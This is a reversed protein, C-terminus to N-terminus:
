ESEEGHVPCPSDGVEWQCQCGPERRQMETPPDAEVVIGLTRALRVDRGVGPHEDLFGRCVITRGILTGKHCEFPRDKAICDAIIEEAREDSVIRARSFLCEDCRKRAVLFGDPLGAGRLIGDAM